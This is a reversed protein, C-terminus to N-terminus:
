AFIKELRFLFYNVDRVGRFQTRFGKIKANFSEASANTSRNDFYNLISVYHQQITRIVTNFNKMGAEEVTRYWHALKTFAIGKDKTNQYISYLEMSLKYAHQIKPYKEFLLQAREKQKDTWKSHHKFLLYRSRALLQKITDGNTLVEPIYTRDAKKAQEYNKNELELVEWRYNIRINQVAENALKQVHFRDTVQQANPFVNSCINVMTYAMDLTIEEVTNRLKKSILKLCQTVQDVKVGKIIAVISGKKGKAKKSTVITYLDGNTFATEDISLHKTINKPYILYEQAHVKAKWEKFDSINAKYQRSLTRGDIGYL